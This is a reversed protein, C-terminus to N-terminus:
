RLGWEGLISGNLPNEIEVRDIQTSILCSPTGNMVFCRIARGDDLPVLRGALILDLGQRPTEDSAVQKVLRYVPQPRQVRSDQKTFIQVISVSPWSASGASVADSMCGAFLLWPAAIGFGWQEEARQEMSVKDVPNEKSFHPTVEIRLAGTDEDYTWSGIGTSAGACGFRMRFEFRRGELRDQTERDDIGLVAASAARMAAILLQERDLPPDPVPLAIPARAVENQVNADTTEDGPSQGCGHLAAALAGAFCIKLRHRSLRHLM